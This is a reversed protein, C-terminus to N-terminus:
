APGLGLLFRCIALGNGRRDERAEEEEAGAEDEVKSAKRQTRRKASKSLPKTAENTANSAAALPNELNHAQAAGTMQTQLAMMGQTIPETPAMAAVKAHAQEGDEVKASDVSAKARIRAEEKCSKSRAFARQLM